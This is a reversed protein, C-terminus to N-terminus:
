EESIGGASNIVITKVQSSGSLVLEITSSADPLGTLKQFLVEDYNGASPTQFKVQNPLSYYEKVNAPAYTSSFVAVFPSSTNTNDLRVGWANGEKQSVSEQQALRILFIIEEFSNKLVSQRYSNSYTAVGITALVSLVLLTVILEILMFAAKGRFLSYHIM